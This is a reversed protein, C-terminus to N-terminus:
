HRFHREGTFVLAVGLADAAAVVVEDKISGGPAAFATVGERAALEVGDPFPFFADSALVAGRARARAKRCAVHVADVRSPLGGGVGVLARGGALAIANSRVHKVLRWAFRLGADEGPTPARKTAVRWPGARAAATGTRSSSAAPSRARRSARSMPPSAPPAKPTPAGSPAIPGIGLRALEDLDSGRARRALIGGHIAPHLTKVRGGLIEPHGTVESADRVPLGAERLARATGGTSVLEVGRAVLARALPELGTKDSVSLLARRIPM